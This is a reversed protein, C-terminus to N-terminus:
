PCQLCVLDAESEELRIYDFWADYNLPNTEVAEEYQIRRKTVIVDEIGADFTGGCSLVARPLLM